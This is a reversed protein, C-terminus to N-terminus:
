RDFWKRNVLLAQAPFLPFAAWDRHTSTFERIAQDVGGAGRRHDDLVILSQHSMLGVLHDLSDRTAEYVDVDLHAFSLPGLDHGRASGPFFGDLVLADRGRSTFLREVDEFRNETFMNTGFGTDLEEDLGSFSTGFSECVIIRRDPSANSLHLASGGLFSGVEIIAGGDCM